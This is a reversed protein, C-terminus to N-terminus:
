RCALTAPDCGRGAAGCRVVELGLCGFPDPACIGLETGLCLRGEPRCSPVNACPDSGVRCSATVGGPVCTAFRTVSACDTRRERLCDYADPACVVLEGTSPDCRAGPRRCLDAGTCAEGGACTVLTGAECSAAPQAPTRCLTRTESLCGFADAACVVLEERGDCRRNAVLCTDARGACPDPPPATCAARAPDCRGGAELTACDQREEALCGSALEACVVLTDGECRRGPLSCPAPVGSCPPLVCRPGETSCSGGPLGECDRRSEVLCRDEDEACVVLTGGECRGGPTACRPRGDDCADPAGEDPAADA